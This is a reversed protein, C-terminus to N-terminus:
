EPGEGSRFQIMREYPRIQFQALWMNQDFYAISYKRSYQSDIM